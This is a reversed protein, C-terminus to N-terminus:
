VSRQSTGDSNNSNSGSSSKAPSRAIMAQPMMAGACALSKPRGDRVYLLPWLAPTLSPELAPAPPLVWHCAFIAPSAPCPLALCPLAVPMPRRAVVARGCSDGQGSSFASCAASSSKWHWGPASDRGWRGLPAACEHPVLLVVSRCAPGCATSILCPDADKVWGEGLGSAGERTAHTPIHAYRIVCGEPLGM